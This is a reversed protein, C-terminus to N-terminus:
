RPQFAIQTIAAHASAAPRAPAAVAGGRVRAAFQAVREAPVALAFDRNGDNGVTAVNIGVLRGAADVLAGGFNGPHIAADTQIFEAAPGGELRAVRLASVIGLTVTSGSGLSDGIALVADGVALGGAPSLDIRPLPAGDVKVLALGSAADTGLLRAPRQTGDPLGVRLEGAQGALEMTTVITGDRDLV